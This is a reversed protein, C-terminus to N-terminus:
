EVEKKKSFGKKLNLDCFCSSPCVWCSYFCSIDVRVSFFLFVFISLTQAYKTGVLKRSFTWMEGVYSPCCPHKATKTCCIWYSKPPKIMAVKHKGKSLIEKRFWMGSAIHSSFAMLCCPPLSDCPHHEGWVSPPDTFLFLGSDPQPWCSSFWQHSYKSSFFLSVSSHSFYLNDKNRM